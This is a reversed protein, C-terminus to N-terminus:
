ELPATLREFETQLREQEQIFQRLTTISSDAVGQRLTRQIAARVAQATTAHYTPSDLVTGKDPRQRPQGVIYCREDATMALDKTLQTM